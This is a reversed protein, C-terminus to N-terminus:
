EASSARRVHKTKWKLWGRRGPVYPGAPDKGVLGEVGMATWATLWHNAEARSTTQPCLNLQSPAGSLLEALAARRDALREPLLSRADSDQLLDFAMVTAPYQAALERIGRGATLRRQMQAFSTRGRDPDWVV